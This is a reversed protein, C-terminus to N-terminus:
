PSKFFLDSNVFIHLSTKVLVGGPVIRLSVALLQISVVIRLSFEGSYKSPFHIKNRRRGCMEIDSLGWSLISKFFLDSNVFIHLSTKVLVGGPVIRLSVALLQISVVIRLSFEGSYKSPFHIKNRRRGCM